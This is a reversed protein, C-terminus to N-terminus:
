ESAWHTEKKPPRFIAKDKLVFRWRSGLPVCAATIVVSEESSRLTMGAQAPVRTSM